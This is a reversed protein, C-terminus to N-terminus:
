WFDKTLIDKVFEAARQLDAERVDKHTVFRMLYADGDKEPANVLVGADKLRKAFMQPTLPAELALHCFVINTQVFDLDVSVGEIKKLWKAFLKANKHDQYLRHRMEDIAIIGAAAIIGAQRMGGGMIKRIRRAKAIFEASGVLMSGIPASLGKSLCFMISDAWAAVEHPGVQLHEAANFVRAGDLHIPIKNYQALEWVSKMYDLPLVTGWSHANELCILATHPFHINTDKRIKSEISDLPMMGQNQLGAEITRMQVGSLLGAAGAEHQIIHSDDGIIIEDGPRTHCLIATQNGFTGSPVFLAAEKHLVQAALLELQQVTPDDGYVDDGVEAQAMAQRMENTPKTVTDSRLDILRMYTRERETNVNYINWCVGVCLDLM